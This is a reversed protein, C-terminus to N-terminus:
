QGESQLDDVTDLLESKQKTIDVLAKINPNQITSDRSVDYLHSVNFVTQEAVSAIEELAQTIIFNCNSKLCKNINILNKHLDQMKTKSLSKNSDIQDILTDCIREIRQQLENLESDLRNAMRKDISEPIHVVEELMVTDSNKSYFYKMTCPVASSSVLLSAFQDFTMYIEAYKNGDPTTVTISVFDRHEVISGNLYVKGSPCSIRITSESRDIEHTNRGVKSANIADTGAHYKSEDRSSAAAQMTGYTNLIKMWEQIFSIPILMTDDYSNAGSGNNKIVRQCYRQLDYQKDRSLKVGLDPIIVCDGVTNVTGISSPIAFRTTDPNLSETNEVQKAM